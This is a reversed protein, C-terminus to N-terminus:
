HALSGSLRAFAPRTLVREALQLTGEFVEPPAGMKMGQFMATCEAGNIAPIMKSLYMGMREPEIAARLQVSVAILEEDSHAAQLAPMIVTEEENMHILFEGTWKCFRHYFDNGLRVVDATTASLAALERGLSVLEAAHEEHESDLKSVSESTLAAILPHVFTTEHHTHEVIVGALFEFSAQVESLVKEEDFNSRGALAAFDFLMSRIAKHIDNYLDFQSHNM